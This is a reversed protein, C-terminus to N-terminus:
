GNSHLRKGKRDIVLDFITSDIIKRHVVISAIGIPDETSPTRGVLRFLGKLIPGDKGERLHTDLRELIRDFIKQLDPSSVM